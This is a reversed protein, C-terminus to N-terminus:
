SENAQEEKALLRRKAYLKEEQEVLDKREKELAEEEAILSAQGKQDFYAAEEEYLQFKPAIRPNTTLIDQYFLHEKKRLYFLLERAEDIRRKETVLSDQRAQLRTLKSYIERFTDM